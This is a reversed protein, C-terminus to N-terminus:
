QRLERSRRCLQAIADFKKLVVIAFGSEQQLRLSFLQHFLERKQDHISYYRARAPDADEAGRYHKRSRRTESPPAVIFSSLGLDRRTFRSLMIPNAIIM